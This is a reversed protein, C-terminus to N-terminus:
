SSIKFLSSTQTISFTDRLVQKTLLADGSHETNQEKGENGMQEDPLLALEVEM